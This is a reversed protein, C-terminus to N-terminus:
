SGEFAFETRRDVARGNFEAEPAGHWGGCGRTLVTKSLNALTRKNQTLESIKVMRAKACNSTLLSPRKRIWTGTSCAAVLTGRVTTIFQGAASFFHLRVREAEM